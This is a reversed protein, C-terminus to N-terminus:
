VLSAVRKIAHSSNMSFVETLTGNELDFFWGSLILSKHKEWAQQVIELESLAKIQAEINLECLRRTRSAFDLFELEHRHREHLEHLPELWKKVHTRDQVGLIVDRIGSCHSYGCVIIHQVRSIEVAEQITAMISIDDQRVQVGINRYVLIEGPEANILESVPVLSDLSDIWLISPEHTDSLRKFYDNDHDLKEMAWVKSELFMKEKTRM